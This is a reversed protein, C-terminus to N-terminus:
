RSTAATPSAAAWTAPAPTSSSGARSRHVPHGARHGVTSEGVSYAGSWPQSATVLGTPTTPCTRTSRRRGGALQHVRDAERRHLRPHHLPDARARRSNMDESGNESAWLPKGTGHPRRNAPCTDARRRRRRVPLARRHDVVASAFASNAAIDNAIAGTRQRRRRDARGLLRRRQAHVRLQEYWSINYGRENWGGLYNITLGHSKACGLWSVLYNIMDTSWFNGGGIWGPAGWALGYLKINPNRAKAQEMLWLEYGTNCNVTGRPTSSALVRLRRHLQHRRRDGGQPDAPGRRLRAQVPLGPDAAAARGPLRDAAPHQGAAASRASGTSPAAASTGNVTIATAAAAPQVPVTLLACASGLVVATAVVTLRWAALRRGGYWALRAVLPSGPPPVGQVQM